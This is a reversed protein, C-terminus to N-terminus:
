MSSATGGARRTMSVAASNGLGMAAIGVLLHLVQIVWHYPGPLIGTQTMGLGVTLLGWLIAVYGLGPNAGSQIVQFALFWLAVVLISGSVMHVPVLSGANGTWFLVGLIVQLAGTIRLVWLATSTSTRM